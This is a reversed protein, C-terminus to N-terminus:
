LGMAPDRTVRVLLGHRRNDVQNTVITEKPVTIIRVGLRFRSHHLIECVHSGSETRFRFRLDETEVGRAQIVDGPPAIPRRRLLIRAECLGSKSRLGHESSIGIIGSLTTSVM